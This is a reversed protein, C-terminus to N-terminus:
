DQRERILRAIENEALGLPAAQKAAVSNTPPREQSWLFMDIQKFTFSELQFCRQFDTMIKFFRSYSEWLDAHQNFFDSFRFQRQMSWLYRDVRSDYIPYVDPRHWSCYKSAFSFFNFDREGIAVRRIQDVVSPSGAALARDIEEGNKYIHDAVREVALVGASYLRNLVVVKVLVHSPNTNQPFQVFVEKLAGEIVKYTDEFEECAKKVLGPSPSLPNGEM